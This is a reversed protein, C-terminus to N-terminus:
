IFIHKRFGRLDFTVRGRRSSNRKQNHSYQKKRRCNMIKMVRRRMLATDARAVFVYMEYLGM